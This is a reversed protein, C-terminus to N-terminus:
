ATADTKKTETAAGYARSLQYVIEANMSRFQEEAAKRIADRMGPPLRVVYKEANQQNTM